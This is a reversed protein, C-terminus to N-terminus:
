VRVPVCACVFVYVCVCLRACVGWGEGRGTEGEEAGYRQCVWMASRLMGGHAVGDLLQMQSVCVCPCM